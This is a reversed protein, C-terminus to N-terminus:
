NVPPCSIRPWLFPFLVLFTLEVGLSNEWRSVTRSTEQFCMPIWKRPDTKIADANGFHKKIGTSGEVSKREREQNFASQSAWSDFLGRGALFMPILLIVCSDMRRKPRKILPNRHVVRRNRPNMRPARCTNRSSNRYCARAGRSDKEILSHTVTECVWPNRVTQPISRSLIDM